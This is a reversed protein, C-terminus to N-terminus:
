VRRRRNMFSLTAMGLGIGALVLTGPEPVIQVYLATSDVVFTATKGTPLNTGAFQTGSTFTGTTFNTSAYNALKYWGDTGSNAFDFTFTSGTGKTFAGTLSLLDSTGPTAKSTGSSLSDLQFLWNQGGNWTVANSVTLTGIGTSGPAIGGDVTVAGNVTGTGGLVANLSVSVASGAATSGDVLLVGQQVSTPGTYINAGGLIQTGLGTKTLTMNNAGNAIAGSYTRTVGSGPNLSLATISSYRGASAGSGTAFVDALNKNGTLGGLTLTTGVAVRLGATATGNVSAATDL